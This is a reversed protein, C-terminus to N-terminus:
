NQKGTLECLDIHFDGYTRGVVMMRLADIGVITDTLPTGKIRFEYGISDAFLKICQERIEELQTQQNM